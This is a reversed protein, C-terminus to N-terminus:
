LEMLIIEVPCGIQDAVKCLEYFTTRSNRRLSRRFDPAVRKSPNGHKKLVPYIDRHRIKRGKRVEAKKRACPTLPKCGQLERTMRILDDPKVSLAASINLLTDVNPNWNFCDSIKSCLYNPALGARQSLASLSLNRSKSNVLVSLLIFKKM